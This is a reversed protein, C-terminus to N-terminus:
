IWGEKGKKRYLEKRIHGLCFIREVEQPLLLGNRVYVGHRLRSVNARGDCVPPRMQLGFGERVSERGHRVRLVVLAHRAGEPPSAVLAQLVVLARVAVLVRILVLSSLSCKYLM